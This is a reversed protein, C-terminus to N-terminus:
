REPSAGALEESFVDAFERIVPVNSVLVQDRGRMDLMYVLCVYM